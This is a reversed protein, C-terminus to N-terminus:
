WKCAASRMFGVMQVIPRCCVTFTDMYLYRGKADVKPENSYGVNSAIVCVGPQIWM